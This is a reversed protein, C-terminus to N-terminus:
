PGGILRRDFAFPIPEGIRLARIDPHGPNLLINFEQPVVASPVRLLLSSRSALWADGLRQTASITSMDPFAPPVDREDVAALAAEDFDVPIAVHGKLARRHDIHVLLELAALALSGGLYV